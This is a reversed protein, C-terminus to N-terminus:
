SFRGRYVNMDNETIHGKIRVPVFFTYVLVFKTTLRDFVCRYFLVTIRENIFWGNSSNNKM